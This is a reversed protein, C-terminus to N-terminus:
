AHDEDTNFCHLYDACYECFPVRCAYVSDTECLQKYLFKKWKMDHVNKEVLAPFNQELLASLDARCWLGLDEWLHGVGLCAVAVLSAIRPESPSSGARHHEMLGVLDTVEAERSPDVRMAVYSSPAHVYGPFHFCMLDTYDSQSLGLAAPLVSLGTMWSAYIRALPEDNADGSAHALLSEYFTARSALAQESRTAAAM